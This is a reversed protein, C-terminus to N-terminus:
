KEEKNVRIDAAKRGLEYVKRMVAPDHCLRGIPLAASPRIVMLKGAAEQEDIYDMTANYRIHRTSLARYVPASMFPRFFALAARRHKRYGKPRTLVVTNDTFGLSEMFRLPVGDSIGGDLYERGRLKVPRSVLPMSASARIWELAEYDARDLQEYHPEGTATDTACVWFECPDSEFTAVDFKDLENPLTHYCFEGPFLDGTRLLERFSCYRSDKAFRMNYRIVRGPQHSKLNCGFCAGASVGMIADFKECRELFVDLVGATFLGRMAGGELILARKTM